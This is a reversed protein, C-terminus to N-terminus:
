FYLTEEEQNKHKEEWNELQNDEDAFDKHAKAERLKALMDKTEITTVGLHKINSIENDIDEEMLSNYIEQENYKAKLQELYDFEEKVEEDPEYDLGLM